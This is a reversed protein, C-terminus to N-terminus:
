LQMKLYVSFRDHENKIKLDYKKPYLYALRKTINQIGIGSFPNKEIGEDYCVSNETTFLISNESNQILSIKIYPKQNGKNGAHKFANEIFPLFILPAIQANKNNIDNTYQIDINKEYRIKELEIYNNIFEIENKISVKDHKCDYLVYSMLDSLKLIMNPTKDSKDLSLSYINNLTNFLLHPNVQAKLAILEANIKEKEYNFMKERMNHWHNFFHIFSGLVVYLLGFFIFYFTMLFEPELDDKLNVDLTAFVLLNLLYCIVVITGLLYFAYQKYKKKEFFTPLLFHTHFVSILIYCIFIITYIFSPKFGPELQFEEFFVHQFVFYFFAWLLIQYILSFKKIYNGQTKM